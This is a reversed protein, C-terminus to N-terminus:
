ALAEEMWKKRRRSDDQGRYKPGADFGVSPLNSGVTKGIEVCNKMNDVAARRIASDANCISGFKYRPETFLNPNIAGIRIGKGVAHRQLDSWDPVNDWLVHVAVAPTIGTFAHVQAADAVKEYADRPAAPDKVIGFRTGCNAYAWSPTEIRLAMAKRAVERLDVGKEGWEGAMAKFIAEHRQGSM